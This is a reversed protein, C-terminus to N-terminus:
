TTKMADLVLKEDFKPFLVLRAGVSMAFTLCLTLGYAHFMPLVGYVTERGPRVGQVWAEGQAANVRLNAHTLIAGKPTGTTGSTYQLVATDDISPAPHTSRLPRADTLTKWPTSGKVPGGVTLASRSKRAAPVPLRLAFRTKLPMARTVDVAVVHKVGLDGPSDLVSAAVKDWVIAVSAGHD